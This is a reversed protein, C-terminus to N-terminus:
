NCNNLIKLIPHFSELLVTINYNVCFTYVIINYKQLCTVPGGDNSIIKNTVTCFQLKFIIPHLLYEKNSKNSRFLICQHRCKRNENVHLINTPQNLLRGGGGKGCTDTKVISTLLLGEGTVRM